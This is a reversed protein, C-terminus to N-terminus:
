FPDEYITVCPAFVTQGLSDLLFSSKRYLSSGSVASIWHGILSSAVPAEFLVPYEGTKLRRAGLRRLTREGARLGIAKAHDLDTHARASSYWYDRQMGSEDEAIV